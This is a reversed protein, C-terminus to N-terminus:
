RQSNYLPIYLIHLIAVNEEEIGRRGLAAKGKRERPGMEEARSLASAVKPRFGSAQEVTAVRSTRKVDFGTLSM